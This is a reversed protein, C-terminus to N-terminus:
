SGALLAQVVPELEKRPSFGDFRAAIKGQADVLYTVPEIQLHWQSVTTRVQTSKNEAVLDPRQYIEIHVFNMQSGYQQKLAEGIDLQPGCTRTQCFAPTSFLIMLPKHEDLAQHISKKYFDPDPTPASTLQAIPTTALTENDSALAMDGPALTSSKANVKFDTTTSLSSGGQKTVIAEVRWLGTGDFTVRTSYLPTHTVGDDLSLGPTFAQVTSPSPGDLYFFRLRVDADGYPSGDPKLIGVVFRNPGVALDETAVRVAVPGKVQTAQVPPQTASSGGGCAAGAIALAAALATLRHPLRM